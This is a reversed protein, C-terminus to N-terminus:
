PASFNKKKTKKQTRRCIRIWPENCGGDKKKEKEETFDIGHNTM